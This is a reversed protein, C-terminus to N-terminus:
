SVGGWITMAILIIMFLVTGIIRIRKQQKSDPKKDIFPWVAVIIIGIIPILVGTTKPVLKLLQYLALFYWEAKVHDPTNLEDAPDGLGVPYIMGVVGVAVAIVIIVVAVWFETMFHDPFFPITKDQKDETETM